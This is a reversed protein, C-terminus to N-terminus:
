QKGERIAILLDIVFISYAGGIIGATSLGVTFYLFILMLSFTIINVVENKM